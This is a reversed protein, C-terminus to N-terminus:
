MWYAGNCFMLLSVPVHFFYTEAECAWLCFASYVFKFSHTHPLIHLFYLCCVCHRTIQLLIYVRLSPPVFSLVSVSLSSVKFDRVSFKAQVLFIRCIPLYSSDSVKLLPPLHWMLHSGLQLGLLTFSSWGGSFFRSGPVLKAGGAQWQDILLM